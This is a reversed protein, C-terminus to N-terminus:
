KTSVRMIKSSDISGHCSSRLMLISAVFFSVGAFFIIYELTGSLLYEIIIGSLLAVLVQPLVIFLNFLGMYVGMRESPIANSVIAYPMALISAWAIGVGTMNALLYLPDNVLPITFLGIGGCILSIIHINKATFKKLLFIFFFAMVLAVGNYMSFCVGTWEVAQQYGEDGAKQSFFLSTAIFPSFYTWMIFLPAWSFVQVLAIKKMVLPMNYLLSGMEKIFGVVGQKKAMNKRFSELDEPPYEKVTFATVLVCALLVVAGIYFAYEVTRPILQQENIETSVGFGHVLIWILASSIIAGVGILITQVSFGVARQHAPLIDVVFARFPQMTTNIAADLVWLLVVAMWLETSNPMAILALSCIIAGVLFYPKRRGFRTWTRDSMYGVIPQIFLGTLPAAIWLVAIESDLAGLMQYIASMNAM